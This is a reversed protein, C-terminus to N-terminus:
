AAEGGPRRSDEAAWIRWQPFERDARARWEALDIPPNTVPPADFFATVEDPEPEYM